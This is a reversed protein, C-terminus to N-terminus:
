IKKEQNIEDLYSQLIITASVEDLHNKRKKRSYDMDILAREAELSSLREDRLIIECDVQQKIKECYDRVYRAMEGESGDMNYPLGVIVEKVNFKKIIQVIHMLDAQETRCNYNEYPTSLIGSSSTAIGIRKTGLDLGLRMM